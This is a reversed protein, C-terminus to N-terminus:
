PRKASATKQPAGPMRGEWFDPARERARAPRAQVMLGMIAIMALRGNNREESGSIRGSGSTLIGM